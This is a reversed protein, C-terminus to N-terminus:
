FPLEDTDVVTAGSPDAAPAAEATGSDKKGCFHVTSVVLANKSRKQGDKEWEDTTMKGELLIEQGKQNMFKEMFQATGGFAKCDLFCKTETDKYRESWAVRFNAYRTGAKTDGFAPADVLRAQIVLHNVAM